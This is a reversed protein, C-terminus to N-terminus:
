QSLLKEVRRSLNMDNALREKMRQHAHTGAAGGLEAGIVELAKVSM